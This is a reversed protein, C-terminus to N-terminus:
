EGNIYYYKLDDPSYKDLLMAKFTRLYEADVPTLFDAKCWTWFRQPIHPPPWIDVDDETDDEPLGCLTQQLEQTTTPSIPVFERLKYSPM